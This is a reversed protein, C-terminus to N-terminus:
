KMKLKIMLPVDNQINKNDGFTGFALTSPVLLTASEGPQLYKVAHQVAQLDRYKGVIVRHFVFPEEYVKSPAFDYIEYSYSIETRQEKAIREGFDKIDIWYGLSTPYYAQDQQSIWEKIQERQKQNLIKTREQSIQLDKESVVGGVPQHIEPTGCAMLLFPFIIKFKKM